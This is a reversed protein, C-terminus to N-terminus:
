GGERNWTSWRHEGVKSIVSGADGNILISKDLIEDPACAEGNNLCAYTADKWEATM